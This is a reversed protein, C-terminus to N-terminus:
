IFMVKSSTNSIERLKKIVPSIAKRVKESLVKPLQEIILKM